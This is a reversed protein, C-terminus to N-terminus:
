DNLWNKPEVKVSKFELLRVLGAPRGTRQEVAIIAVGPEEVERCRDAFKAYAGCFLERLGRRGTMESPVGSPRMVTAHNQKAGRAQGAWLDIGITKV